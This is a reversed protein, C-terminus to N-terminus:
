SKRRVESILWDKKQQSMDMDWEHAKESGRVGSYLLRVSLHATAAGERFEINEVSLQASLDNVADFFSDWDERMQQTFNSHLAGLARLDEAELARAYRAVVGNIDALQRERAAAAADYRAMASEYKEVATTYRGDQVNRDGERELAVADRYEALFEFDAPMSTRRERLGTQLAETERLSRETVQRAEETSTLYLERARGFRDIASEFDRDTVLREAERETEVAAAFTKPALEGASARQSDTKARSMASREREVDASRDPAATVVPKPTTEPERVQPTPVPPPAEKKVAEATETNREAADSAAQFKAASMEFLTAAQMYQGVDFEAQARDM